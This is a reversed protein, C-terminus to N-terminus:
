YKRAPKIREFQEHGDACALPVSCVSPRRVELADEHAEVAAAVDDAADAPRAGAEREHAPDDLLVTADDRDLALRLPPRGKPYTQRQGFPRATALCTKVLPVTRLPGLPGARASGGSRYRM